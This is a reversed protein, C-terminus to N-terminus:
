GLGVWGVRFRLRLCGGSSGGSSGGCDRAFDLRTVVVAFSERFTPVLSEPDRLDQSPLM